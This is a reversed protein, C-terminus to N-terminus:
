EPAVEQRELLGGGCLGIGVGVLAVIAGMYRIVEALPAKLVYAVDINLVPYVLERWLRCGVVHPRQPRYEILRM